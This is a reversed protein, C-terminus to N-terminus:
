SGVAKIVSLAIRRHLNYKEIAIAIIFGGMYLFVYRHGYSATTAQVPLGGTLPFLIIPLLATAAIPIVETVWWIGIWVTTALVANAAPPMGEPRFFLLILTFAAPGSILGILKSPTKIM